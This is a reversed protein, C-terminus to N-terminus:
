ADLRESAQRAALIAPLYQSSWARVADILLLMSRGLETLEYEVRPPNEDYATRTVLGDRRMARLTASLVKPTIAGLPVRLETFRRPGDALCIVIMETWKDGIQFPLAGSPCMADFMDADLPETM